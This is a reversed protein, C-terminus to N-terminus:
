HIDLPLIFYYMIQHLCNTHSNPTLLKGNGKKRGGRPSVIQLFKAKCSWFCPSGWQSLNELSKRNQKKKEKELWIWHGQADDNHITRRESFIPLLSIFCPLFSPLMSREGALDEKKMKEDGKKRWTKLKEKEAVEKTMDDESKGM